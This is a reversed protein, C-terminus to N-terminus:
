GKKFSAAWASFAAFKTEWDPAKAPGSPKRERKPMLEALRPMKKLRGLAATHWATWAALEHERLVRSNVGALVTEVERPTLRWFLM